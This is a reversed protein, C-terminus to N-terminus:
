KLKVFQQQQPTETYFLVTQVTNNVTCYPSIVKVTNWSELLKQTCPRIHSNFLMNKVHFTGGFGVGGGGRM